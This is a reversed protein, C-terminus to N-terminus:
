HQKAGDTKSASDLIFEAYHTTVPNCDGDYTYSQDNMHSLPMQICAITRSHQM